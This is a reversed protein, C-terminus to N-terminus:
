EGTLNTRLKNAPRKKALPQEILRQSLRRELEAELFAMDADCACCWGDATVHGYEDAALQEVEDCFAKLATPSSQVFEDFSAYDAMIGSLKRTFKSM